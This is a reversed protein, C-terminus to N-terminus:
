RSSARAPGERKEWMETCGVDRFGLRTYVPAGLKSAQLSATRIGRERAQVLLRGLIAGSLGSGQHEPRTAVGTVCVDDGIDIGAACAIGGSGDDAVLWSSGPKPEGEFAAAWAGELGYAADNIEGVEALHRAPRLEVGQPLERAPPEFGALEIGMTRPEADLVHGRGALVERGLRHGPAIWATWARVGAERYVEDLEDLMPEIAAPDLATVCNFISRDPVAPSVSAVVGDRRIVRGSSSSSGFLEAEAAIGVHVRRALESDSLTSVGRVSVGAGRGRAGFTM